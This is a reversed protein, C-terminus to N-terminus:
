KIAKRVETGITRPVQYIGINTAVIIAIARWDLMGSIWLGFISSVSSYLFVKIYKPIVGWVNEVEKFFKEIEKKM